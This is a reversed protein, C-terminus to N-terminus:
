AHAGTLAVYVVVACIVAWVISVVTGVRTCAADVESQTYQQPEYDRDTDYDDRANM